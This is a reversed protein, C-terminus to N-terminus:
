DRLVEKLAMLDEDTWGFKIKLASEKQKKATAKQKAIERAPTKIQEEEITQWEEKTIYKEEVDEKKYGASEANRTLTGLPADGSQYEILRGTSKELCVRDAYCISILSFILFLIILIKM